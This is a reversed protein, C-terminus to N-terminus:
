WPALSSTAVVRSRHRVVASPQDTSAKEQGDREDRKWGATGRAERVNPLVGGPRAPWEPLHRHEGEAPVVVRDIAERLVLENV